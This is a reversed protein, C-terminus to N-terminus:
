ARPPSTSVPGKPPFVSCDPRRVRGSSLAPLYLGALPVIPAANRM